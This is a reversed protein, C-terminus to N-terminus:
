KKKYTTTQIEEMEMFTLTHYCDEYNMQESFVDSVARVGLLEEGVKLVTISTEYWRHKEVDLKDKITPYDLELISLQEEIDTTQLIKRANLQEVIDSMM